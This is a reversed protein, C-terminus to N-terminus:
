VLPIMLSSKLAIYVAIPKVNCDKREKNRQKVSQEKVM